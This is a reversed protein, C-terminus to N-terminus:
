KPQGGVDEIEVDADVDTVDPAARRRAVPPPM